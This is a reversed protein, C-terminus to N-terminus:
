NNINTKSLRELVERTFDLYDIFGNSKKNNSFNIPGDIPMGAIKTGERIHTAFTTPNLM